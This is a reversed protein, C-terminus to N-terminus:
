QSSITVMGKHTLRGDTFCLRYAPSLSQATIRYLRCEDTGPPNAPAGDPREDRDVRYVPLRSEVISRSQGIRLDRYVGADLVSRHSTYADYGFMVAILVVAVAAPVWIADIMGRRARRRAQALERMPGPPVAAAGAALPLRATVAFGGDAPRARLRGGALRVREDLSVLGYGGSGAGPLPGAPPPTNAVTVVAEGAAADTSLGVTVAAGPAHKAANTLAEQVVRYVARDAMPPLPQLEGDLTVAMGAATARGVLAAVTDDSPLVPAPEGDQRLVGIIERLRGTAAAAAQRLEGAAERASDDLGPGVQLAAARVALLSLEHGLSDHMDGAIRSRELLRTRQGILDRERELREALEWGTRVLEDHQRVYRGALWPLAITMLATTVVTFRSWETGGLIGGALTAGALCVGAFFILGARPGSTRRGLLVALVIQAIVFNPTFLDPTAAMGLAAPVAAAVVPRRRGVAVAMGLLPVAAVQVWLLPLGPEDPPENTIFVPATIALWLLLDAGRESGTFRRAGITWKM